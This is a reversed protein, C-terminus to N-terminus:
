FKINYTVSPLIGYLYMKYANHKSLNIHDRGTYLSFVNKRNYLNLLGFVWETQWRKKTVPKYSAQLDLQHYAPARFGNRTTYEYFVAGQHMYYGVPMTANMGSRLAFSSSVSWQSNIEYNVVAKLNHPRDYVPAYAESNNIGSIKNRTKSLTYSVSGTLAGREKSASLELGASYASGAKVINEPENNMFIDANDIYDAVNRMKKYYVEALLRYMNNEFSKEYGLSFQLASAPKLKANSPLWLDSPIGVSSNSLLHMQQTMYHATFFYSSQKDAKYRLEVRPEPRLFWKAPLVSNAIGYNANLRLGGNILWKEHLNYKMELYASLELSRRQTMRYPRINSADDLKDIEGPRTVFYEALVGMNMKLRDSLYYDLKNQLTYSQMDSRWVYNRGDTFQTYDYTYNSFYFSTNSNLRENLISNWRITSTTNGWNMIYDMILMPSFFHDNSTYFSAFLRNAPNILINIKANLDFFRIDTNKLNSTNNIFPLSGIGKAMLGPYGYRGAVMFSVKDKILPGEALAKASLLGLSGKFHFSQNNGEKMKVDVISSLRGGFTAPIYSKYFNAERIADTNFVSFFSLAHNPNYVIAEDLLYLNQWQNGGRVSLNNSGDNGSTVGPQFLIGKLLDPDGGITPIQNIRTPTLSTYSSKNGADAYVVVDQLANSSKELKINVITDREVWLTDMYTTYGMMSCHITNKGAEVSMSYFGYANTIAGIKQGSKNERYLHAGVLVEGTEKDLINGYMRYTQSYIPLSFLLIVLIIAPLRM